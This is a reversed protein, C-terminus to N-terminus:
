DLKQGNSIRAIEELIATKTLFGSRELVKVIAELTHVNSMSIEEFSIAEEPDLANLM